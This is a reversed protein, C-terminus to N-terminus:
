ADDDFECLSVVLGAPTRAMACYRAGLPRALVQKLPGVPVGRAALAAAVAEARLAGAPREAAEKALRQDLTGEGRGAPLPDPLPAPAAAPPSASRCAGALVLLAIAVRKM